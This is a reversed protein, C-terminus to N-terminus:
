RLNEWFKYESITSLVFKVVRISTDDIEYESPIKSAQPLKLTANVLATFDFRGIGALVISGAELAEPREISNRLTIAKSGLIAAEESISGSDSITLTAEQQLKCFDLFGFPECLIIKPNLEFKHKQLKDKTRPHLSLVIKDSFNEALENLMEVVQNLREKSDVNEQRHISVLIFNKPELALDNLVQSANIDNECYKIVEQLPSGILSIFRPNLGESLLNRRAHESYVLNFDSAHDIIRRNIEEPVNLDFSRNGAELHYVPIGMRRAMISTLASNTDGLILIGQPKFALLQEEVGVFLASLSKGLSSTPIELNVDPSRLALDRFFVDSLSSTFNQGTHILRHDFYEDLLPIIRSLRIIEPRTGVITVFRRKKIESQSSNVV